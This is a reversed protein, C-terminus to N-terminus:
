SLWVHINHQQAQAVQITGLQLPAPGGGSSNLDTGSLSTARLITGQQSLTLVVPMEDTAGKAALVRLELFLTDGAQEQLRQVSIRWAYDGDADDPDTRDFNEAQSLSILSFWGAGGDGLQAHVDLPATDSAHWVVSFTM